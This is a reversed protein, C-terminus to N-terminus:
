KKKFTDVTLQLAGTKIFEKLVKKAEELQRDYQKKFDEEEFKVEIDPIIWQKDIMHGKPTYWQAITVKLLSGDSLDFPEQVSWKGYTKEGVIIAKDYERLAWATIESASASNGNVLVVIKWTYINGDNISYYNRNELPNRYKTEVLVKGDEIIHSLMEVASQLYGGWNDRLDIIIWEVKKATFDDLVKNFDHATEDWFINVTIYGIQTGELIKSDVSPIKIKERLVTKEIFDGEWQRLITLKVQTNAPWKIKAVADYVTFGEISIDDVKIVIDGSRIDFKKAPSGNIVRDISVGLEHKEVIAGIWEFDGSLMEDFQKKEENNMFETHKDWLSEVYWRVIGDAIDQNKVWDISYFNEKVIKYVEELKKTPIEDSFYKTLFQEKNLSTNELKQSQYLSNSLIIWFTFSTLFTVFIYLFLRSKKEERM